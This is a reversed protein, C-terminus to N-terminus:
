TEKTRGRGRRGDLTWRLAVRATATPPLHLVHGIWRWRRRRIEETNPRTTTMSYLDENSITNPWHVDVIMRLCKRQFVELKKGITKTMKWSEAGYLLSTLIDPAQDAFKVKGFRWISKLMGFAQSAKSLRSKIEADCSRESTMKSGLYPFEDVEKIAIGYSQIAEKSRSNMWMHMPKWVLRDQELLQMTLKGRCAPKDRPWSSWTM